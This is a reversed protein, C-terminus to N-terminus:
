SKYAIAEIEVKVDKPLRAAQVCARAPKHTGFEAAYVENMKTFDNMDALFVTTKVVDSLSLGAASLVAKLNSIVLKTQDATSGDFLKLEGTKPDIPIQGSCFLFGGAEVGQSYPGVAKPANETNIYKM